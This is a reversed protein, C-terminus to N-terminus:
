IFNTHFNNKEEHICYVDELKERSLSPYGELEGSIPRTCCLIKGDVDDGRSIRKFAQSPRLYSLRQARPSRKMALACSIFWIANVYSSNGRFELEPDRRRHYQFELSSNVLSNAPFKCTRPINRAEYRNNWSITYNWRNFPAVLIRSLEM